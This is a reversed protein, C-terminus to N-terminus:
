EREGDGKEGCEYQWSLFCAGGKQARLTDQRLKKRRDACRTQVLGPQIALSSPVTSFFIASPMKGAMEGSPVRTANLVLSFVLSVVYARRIATTSMAVPFISPEFIERAVVGIGTEPRCFDSAARSVRALASRLRATFCVRLIASEHQAFRQLSIRLM